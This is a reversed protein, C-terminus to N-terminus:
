NSEARADSWVIAVRPDPSYTCYRGTRLTARLHRVLEPHHAELRKLTAALARTVNIRAREHLGADLEPLDTEAAVRAGNVIEAALIREHPRRLLYELYRLGNTDRLRCVEDGFVLTWYEGERRISQRPSRATTDDDLAADMGAM